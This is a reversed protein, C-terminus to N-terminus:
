GNSRATTGLKSADAGSGVTPKGKDLLPPWAVACAGTCDSKTGSDKRFLYLTRGTSNVLIDGLNSSATDVTAAKGHTATSTSASTSGGCGAALVLALFGATVGGVLGLPKIRIM